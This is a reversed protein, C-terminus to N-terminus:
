KTLHNTMLNAPFIFAYICLIQAKELDNWIHRRLRLVPYFLHLAGTYFCPRGTFVSM